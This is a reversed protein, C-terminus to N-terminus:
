CSLFAEIIPLLQLIRNSLSKADQKFYHQLFISKGVRGQVLDIQEQLLGMERMKTAYYSRLQKIRMPLGARDLRKDLANYSIGTSKSIQNLLEKPVTSIYVNKSTRLFLEPSRFHELFGTDENFYEETYNSGLEVILNFANVGEMARVGSLLMFRLYLQENEKLVEM